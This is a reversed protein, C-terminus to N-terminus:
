CSVSVRSSRGETLLKTFRHGSCPVESVALQDRHKDTLPTDIGKAEIFTVPTGELVLAYDVKYTKGFAKVSYELQTNTPIEWGLLELFDRLLATKTNAEDMQPSAEIISETQEVYGRVADEEM